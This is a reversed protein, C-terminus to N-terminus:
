FFREIMELLLEKKIPKSIYDDCGAELAKEREGAIAYATQAIIVVDKNFERIKRTAEYGNMEPMQIDMLVLDIDPNNRCIKVTDNGTKAHLIEKSIKKTVVSLHLDASEEDEAILIKLNPNELKGYSGMRALKTDSAESRLNRTEPLTNSVLPLTFYFLSGKNSEMGVQGGLKEIIHHVISLGLGHGETKVQDLREFKKFLLKQNCASIGPGNDRVWFRIMGKPVNEVKDTDAGIEIRLPTGGYKIANSLYNIWVEEVWPAYGVATPWVDPLIIEANSKEIIPTLSNISETVIDGMNLEETKIEAKRVSAFLLLNNIIQQTKKSDKIIISLYNLIEDKSLESYGEFLLDAFSMIVGLPNKLDHAVTHSFSDLDENREHLQQTHQQLAEEAKKRKTIDLFSGIMGEPNGDADKKLISNSEVVFETGDLRKGILGEPIAVSGEKFLTEIMEVAKERTSDTWYELANTGIMEDTTKYGWMKAASSNAYTIIGKLDAVFIASVSTETALSSSRLAVEAQKRETINHFIGFGGIVIGKKDFQPTVTILLQRKKGDPRIIELEYTNKTGQTRIITQTAIMKLTEPTLFESLNRNILKNPPVGFIREAAPNCYIINEELDVTMVGEGINEFLSRYKKESERLSEEMKKQKTINRAFGCLGTIKGESDKLPVKITHFSHMVGDVSKTPFEELIEGKLVKKDSEMVHKGDEEGFLDIDTKNILKESREGFLKEMAPNVKKYKLSTDKIFISDQATNFVARFIEESVRLAEEAQKRETIDTMIGLIAKGEKNILLKTNLIAEVRKGSKTRITFEIPPVDKGKLHTEFNSMISELYEPQILIKFDFDHSYFEDITYGTIEECIKNAYVIKGGQNIFIMNPSNEALNKFKEKSEQLVDEAQKRKTIDRWSSISYLLKGEKDIAANVNLSVDIKSGDKRKLILEKDQIIGTELFQQFVKKAENICDNHYMKFIPSGIIEKRSYGTKNLVTDNCLLISADDPSVSVYMDPSNNYLVGFKEESERLEKTKKNITKEFQKRESRLKDEAEKIRLMVNILTSLEVPNIPKSLFADAGSELSKVTSETDTKIAKLIILPIYKTLENKKLRECVEYADMEPMVIDLLITDPQEKQAIKIGEKETLATLVKCDPMNSKIVTKITTLNDKQNDIVLIKKMMM